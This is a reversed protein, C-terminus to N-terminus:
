QVRLKLYREIQQDLAKLPTSIESEIEWEITWKISERASLLNRWGLERKARESSLWLLQSEHFGDSPPCHTWTADSPWLACAIDSMQSVKLKSEDSPGFNYSESTPISNLLKTGISLYGMVPDLVHQWPRLSNPNRIQVETNSRFGKILDPLLRDESYDGGGIVNGSRVSVIKLEHSMKALNQWALIGMEAASKSASYPDIGGLSDDEKYGELKEVNKYVKDTTSVILGKVSPTELSAQLVNITGMVNTQFTEIPNRYSERVLAQAALHFVLEPQTKAIFKETAELCNIDIYEQNQMFGTEIKTYLADAKPPLSIGSVIAGLHHLTRILWTGKFGTHGTVLVKVGSFDFNGSKSIDSMLKGIRGHHKQSTGYSM